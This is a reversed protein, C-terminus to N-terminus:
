RQPAKPAEGPRPADPAADAPAPNASTPAPATPETPEAPSAPSAPVPASPPAPPPTPPPPLPGLVRQVTLRVTWIGQWTRYLEGDGSADVQVAVPLTEEGLQALHTLWGDADPVAALDLEARLWRGSARAEFAPCACPAPNYRVLFPGSRLAKAEARAARQDAVPAGPAAPPAGGCATLLLLSLSLSLIALLNRLGRLNLLRLSRRRARAVVVPTLRAMAGGGGALPGRQQRRVASTM